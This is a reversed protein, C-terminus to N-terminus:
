RRFVAILILLWGLLGQSHHSLNQRGTFSMLEFLEVPGPPLRMVIQWPLGELLYICYAYYVQPSICIFAILLVVAILLRIWIVRGRCLRWCLWLLAVSLLTSLAALGIQGPVTLTFFSDEAYM